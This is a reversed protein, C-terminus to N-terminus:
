DTNGDVLRTVSIVCKSECNDCVFYTNDGMEQQVEWHTSEGCQCQFDILIDGEM